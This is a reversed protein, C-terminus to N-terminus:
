IQYLIYAVCLQSNKCYHAHAALLFEQRYVQVKGNIHEQDHTIRVAYKTNVESKIQSYCRLM